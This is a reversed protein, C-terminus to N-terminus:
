KILYPAVEQESLVCYIDYQTSACRKIHLRQIIVVEQRSLVCLIVSVIQVLHERDKYKVAILISM